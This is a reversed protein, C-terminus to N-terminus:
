QIFKLRSSIFILAFLYNIFHCHIRSPEPALAFKEEVEWFSDSKRYNLFNFSSNITFIGPGRNFYFIFFYCLRYINWSKWKEDTTFTNVRAQRVRPRGPPRLRQQRGHPEGAELRPLLLPAQALLRLGWHNTYIIKYYFIIDGWGRLGRLLPRCCRQIPRACAADAVPRRGPVRGDAPVRVEQRFLFMLQPQPM